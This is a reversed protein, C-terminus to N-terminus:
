KDGSANHRQLRAFTAELGKFVGVRPSWGLIQRARSIDAPSLPKLSRVRYRSLPLPRKLVAGMKECMWGATMLISIPVRTVPTGSAPKCWRLYHNQTVPTPDILHITQGPADPAYEAAILGDVVDEVYVLPLLRQGNGACIWRGALGIVGNPAVKEAGPGFIQGPRVIVAPLGRDRIADAVIREAQLKTQTYIGRWEPHPELDSEENVPIGDAHGAHDLVSCSSVYILRKVGYKLCADVINYTGWITGAEFDERWGKMAAGAHYVVEVGAVARAVADPEGLSGYVADLGECPSGPAPPRRLFVRPREGMSRLRAVLASGLFGSAGTVLIRAPAPLYNARQQELYDKEADAGASAAEVWAVARRGEDPSVPVPEGAALAHYFRKVSQYIGPAPKIRGSVAGLLFGPIALLDAAANRMGNLIFHLQKPGPYTRYFRVRQLFVDVHIVGKTGHVWFENQLPHMNWSLLVSGTGREAEATARWEDFTLMPNAGTSYHRADLRTIPGVFAELLYLAHVGLDRFPYSGQRYMAPVKGGAYPPYESGRFYTVSLVDGIRGQAVYDLAKLVPPEFRLSHNVSLVRGKERARAIMRDCEEASEAMPKEVFVHCNADLARLALECHSEPPTLVHVVDLRGAELMEDLSAYVAPIGFKDALEQAKSVASDCIAAVEVNQLDRLAILHRSAVYGAGALGARIRESM